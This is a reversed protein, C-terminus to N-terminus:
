AGGHHLGGRDRVGRQAEAEDPRQTQEPIEERQRLQPALARAAAELLSREEGDSALHQGAAGLAAIRADDLLLHGIEADFGGLVLAPRM